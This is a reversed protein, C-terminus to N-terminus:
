VKATILLHWGFNKKLSNFIEDPMAEFWPERVYQYNRYEPISYPFIHDQRIQVTKFRSFATRVDEHTYTQAQPCGPQAEPQELGDRILAAKYSNEAYLMIRAEGGPALLQDLQDIIVQPTESHHIVGFSYIVDFKEDPFIELIREANGVLFRGQLGEVAFRQQALKVSEESLDFGTYVAGARAYEAADTGIGVGIELVRKGASNKFDAFEPIHPEVFYRRATVEQYYELTGVEQQSHRINCPRRNWYARINELTADSDQIKLEERIEASITM